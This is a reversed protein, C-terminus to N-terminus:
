IVYVDISAMLRHERGLTYSAKASSQEVLSSSQLAAMQLQFVTMGGALHRYERKTMPENIHM